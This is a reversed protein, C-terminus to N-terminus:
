LLVRRVAKRWGALAEERWATDRAPEFVRDVERIAALEELGSWFGTALMM